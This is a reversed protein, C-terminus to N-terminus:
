FYRSREVPENNKINQNRLFVHGVAAVGLLFGLPNKSLIAWRRWWNGGTDSVAFVVGGLARLILNPQM